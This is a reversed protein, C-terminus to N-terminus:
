KQVQLLSFFFFFVWTGEWRGVRKRSGLLHSMVPASQMPSKWIIGRFKASDYPSDQYKIKEMRVSIPRVKM